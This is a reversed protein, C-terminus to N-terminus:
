GDMFAVRVPPGRRGLGSLGAHEFVDQTSLEGLQQIQRRLGLGLHTRAYDFDVTQDPRQAM